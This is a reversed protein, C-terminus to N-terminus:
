DEPPRVAPIIRTIGSRFTTGGIRGELTATPPSFSTAIETFPSLTQDAPSVVSLPFLLENTEFFEVEIVAQNARTKLDDRRKIRGFPVVKFRGYNPTQLTGIGTESLMSDFKDADEDYDPGSFFVRFPFRRGSRGLDQVFTGDADPFNFATTHKDFENSVDEYIFEIVEGSPSTYSPTKLRDEWTM